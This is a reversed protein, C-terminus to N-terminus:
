FYIFHQCMASTRNLPDEEEEMFEIALQFGKWVSELAKCSEKSEIAESAMAFLKELIGRKIDYPSKTM